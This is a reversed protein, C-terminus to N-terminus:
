RPKGRTYLDERSWDRAPANTPLTMRQERARQRATAEDFLRVREEPAIRTGSRSRVPTLRIGDGSAVFEVKDGPVIGYQDAIRKPITIYTSLKQARQLADHVRTL